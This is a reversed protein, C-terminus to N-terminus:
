QEAGKVWKVLSRVSGKQNGSCPWCLEVGVGLELMVQAFASNWETM